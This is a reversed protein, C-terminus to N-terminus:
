LFVIRVPYKQLRELYFSVVNFHAAITEAQIRELEDNVTNSAIDLKRKLFYL